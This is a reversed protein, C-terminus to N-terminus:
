GDLIEPFGTVDSVDRLNINGERLTRATGGTSIITIGLAALQGALAIVGRKDYVSILARRVVPNATM